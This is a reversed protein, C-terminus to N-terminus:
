RSTRARRGTLRAATSFRSSPFALDTDLCKLHRTPDYVRFPVIVANCVCARNPDIIAYLLDVHSANLSYQYHVLIGVTQM